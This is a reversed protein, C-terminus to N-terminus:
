RRQPRRRALALAAASLILLPWPSPARPAAGLACSSSPADDHTPTAATAVSGRPGDGSSDGGVGGGPSSGGVGPSSGGGGGPPATLPVDLVYAEPGSAGVFVFPARPFDAGVPIAQVEAAPKTQVVGDADFQWAAMSAPDIVHRRVGADIVWVEPSGDDARVVRPADAVDPGDAYSAVIADPEHVVDRFGDFRWADFAAPSPIWRKVAHDADIPPAPTACQFSKPSGGLTANSGGTADIGYVTVAHPQGDLLSRPTQAAFAHNCSGIAQCLDARSAGANMVLAKPSPDGAVSDFYLHVDIAQDPADPDQAWGTIADCTADDLSGTPSADCPEIGDFRIPHFGQIYGDNVNFDRRHATTTGAAPERTSEQYIFFNEADYWGGFLMIHGESNLADGPQLEAFSGLETTVSADFPAYGLTSRGSYTDATSLDWTASM